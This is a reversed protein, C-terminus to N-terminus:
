YDLLDCGLISAHDKSGLLELLLPNTASQCHAVNKGLLNVYELFGIM